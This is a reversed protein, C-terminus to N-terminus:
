CANCSLPPPASPEIMRKSFISVLKWALAPRSSMTLKCFGIIARWLMEAASKYTESEADEGRGNLYQGHRFRTADLQGARESERLARTGREGLEEQAALIGLAGGGITEDRLGETLQASSPVATSTVVSM